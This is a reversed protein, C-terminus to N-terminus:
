VRDTIFGFVPCDFVTSIGCVLINFSESKSESDFENFLDLPHGKVQDSSVSIRFLSSTGGIDRFKDFM